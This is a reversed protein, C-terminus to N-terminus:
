SLSNVHFSTSLPVVLMQVLKICNSTWKIKKYCLPLTNAMEVELNTMSSQIALLQFKIM